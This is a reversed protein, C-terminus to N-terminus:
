TCVDHEGYATLNANNSRFTIADGNSMLVIVSCQVRVGTLYDQTVTLQRTSIQLTGNVIVNQDTNPELFTGNLLWTVLGDTNSGVLTTGPPTETTNVVCTFTAMSDLPAVVNMPEPGTIFSETATMTIIIIAAHVVVAFFTNAPKQQYEM